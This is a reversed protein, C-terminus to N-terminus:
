FYYRARVELRNDNPKEGFETYADGQLIYAKLRLELNNVGTYLLEPTLSYSQDELNAILTIAPVFYLIDFPEKNSARLYLYQRGPNRQLYQEAGTRKFTSLLSQNDDEYATRVSSYFDKLQAEGYGAGNYYYELIYTTESETLYRLGLLLQNAGGTEIETAGSEAIVPKQVERLYAWEGHVEFNTTINRSADMGIRASRSGESLVAVDIDTNKYLFYAKAALNYQDTKGYDKNIDETVPLFVPTIAITHLDSNFSKIYDLTALVYGERSLDPDNPDKPREVFGIPNWAYGKGWRLVRKGAEVIFSSNPQYRGFGEYLSTQEEDALEDHQYQSHLTADVTFRNKTYRGTLEVAGTTRDLTKRGTQDLSGLIYGASSQDLEFHEYRLEGYGFVEYPKKEFESADFSFEEAAQVNVPFWILTSLIFADAKTM